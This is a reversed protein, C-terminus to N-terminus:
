AVVVVVIHAEEEEEYAVVLGSTYEWEVVAVEAKSVSEMVSSYDQESEVTCDFSAFRLNWRSPGTEEDELQGVRYQEKVGEGEIGSQRIRLNAVRGKHPRKERRHEM